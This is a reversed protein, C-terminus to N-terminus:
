RVTSPRTPGCRRTTTRRSSSRKRRRGTRWRWTAGCPRNSPGRKPSPNCAPPSSHPPHFACVPAPAGAVGPWVGGQVGIARERLTPRTRTGPRGSLTARWPPGPAVRRRAPLACRVSKRGRPGAAAGGPPARECATGVPRRGGRMYPPMTGPAPSLAHASNAAAGTCGARSSITLAHPHSTPRSLTTARAAVLASTRRRWVRGRRGLDRDRAEALLLLNQPCTHTHSRHRVRPVAAPATAERKRGGRSGEGKEGRRWAGLRAADVAGGDGGQVAVAGGAGVGAADGAEGGDAARDDRRARRGEGHVRRAAAGRERGDVGGGVIRADRRLRKAPARDCRPARARAQDREVRRGAGHGGDGGGRPARGCETAGRPARERHPRPGPSQDQDVRARAPACARVDGAGGAGDEGEVRGAVEDGHGGGARSPTAQVGHHADEINARERAREGRWKGGRRRCGTRAWGTRCM